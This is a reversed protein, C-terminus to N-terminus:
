KKIYTYEQTTRGKVIRITYSGFLADGFDIIMKRKQLAQSTLLEGKSNYVEVQAGVLQRETKVTFLNKYRPPELTEIADAAIGNFGSVIFLSFFVASISIKMTM